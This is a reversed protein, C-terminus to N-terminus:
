LADGEGARASAQRRRWWLTGFLAAVLVIGGGATLAGLWHGGTLPLAPPVADKVLMLYGTPNVCAVPRTTDGSGAGSEPSCRAELGSTGAQYVDLQGANATGGVRFRIPQALLQVDSRPTVGSPGAATRQGTPAKTEVLWYTGEPVNQARYRGEQLGGRSDIPYFRVCSEELGDPPQVDWNACMDAAHATAYPQGPQGAADTYLVFEHGVMNTLVVTNGAADRVQADKRITFFNSQVTHTTKCQAVSAAAATTACQLPALGTSNAAAVNTYTTGPPVDVPPTWWGSIQTPGGVRVPFWVEAYAVGAPMNFAATELEWSGRFANGSPISANQTFVPPKVYVDAAAIEAPTPTAGAPVPNAPLSSLLNGSADFFYIARWRATGPVPAEPYWRAAKFVDTLDDKVTVGNLAYGPDGVKRVTIKYHTDGNVHLQAGPAPLSGKEVTWARIPHFTCAANSTECTAPITAAGGSTSTKVLYNNLAFGARAPAANATGDNQAPGGALRTATNESSPKVKVYFTVTGTGSAAITGAVNIARTAGSGVMTASGTSGSFGAVTLGPSTNNITGNAATLLDADDLVDALYDRFPFSAWDTAGQNTGVVATRTSPNTLTLTYRIVDGDAVATGQSLATTSTCNANNCKVASKGGQVGIIDVQTAAPANLGTLSTTGPNAANTGLAPSEYVAPSAPMVRVRVICSTSGSSFDAGTVTITQGGNAATVTAGSCTTRSRQSVTGSPYISLGAPLQEVFGFNDKAGLEATNTITFKLWLNNATGSAPPMPMQAVPSGGGDNNTTSWTGSFFQKDLQPTVDALRVNDFAFDNGSASTVSNQVQVRLSGMAARTIPTSSQASTGTYRNTRITQGAPTEPDTIYPSSCPNAGTLKATSGLGSGSLYVGLGPGSTNCAASADLGARYYRSAQQSPWDDSYPATTVLDMAATQYMNTSGLAVADTIYGASNNANTATSAVPYNGMAKSMVRMVNWWDTRTSAPTINGCYGTNVSNNTANPNSAGPNLRIGNCYNIAGWQGGVTPLGSSAVGQYQDIRGTDGANGTWTQVPPEEFGEVWIDQPDQPTGPTGPSFAAAAVLGLLDASASNQAQTQPQPDQALSRTKPATASPAEADPEVVEPAPEPAPSSPEVPATEPDSGSDGTGPQPEAQSAPPAQASDAPEAASASAIASDGLPAAFGVLVSLGLAVTAM